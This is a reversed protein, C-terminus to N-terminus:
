RGTSVPHKTAFGIPDKVLQKYPEIVGKGIEEGAKAAPKLSGQKVSERVGKQAVDGMHVLSTPTGVALEGTDKVANVSLEAAPKATYKIAYKPASVIKEALGPPTFGAAKLKKPDTEMYGLDNAKKLGKPTPMVNHKTVRPTNGYRDRPDFGVLKSIAKAERERRKGRESRGPRRLGPSSRAGVRPADSARPRRFMAVKKVAKGQSKYAKAQSRSAEVQKPTPRYPM